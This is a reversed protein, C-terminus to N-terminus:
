TKHEMAKFCARQVCADYLANHELGSVLEPVELYGFAEAMSSRSFDPDIGRAWAISALDLPIYHVNKPLEGILKLLLTWDYAYVDSVVRCEGLAGLWSSLQNAVYASSGRFCLFDSSPRRWSQDPMDSLVLNDIINEQLWEDIHDRRYDTLEAYRASGDETVMGVSVLTTDPRLGTFETDLFVKLKSM